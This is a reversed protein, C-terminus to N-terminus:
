VNKKKKLFTILGDAQFHCSGAGASRQKLGTVAAFPFLLGTKDGKFVHCWWGSHELHGGRAM